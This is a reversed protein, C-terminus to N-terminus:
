ALSTTAQMGEGAPRVSYYQVTPESESEDLLIPAPAGFNWNALPEEKKQKRKVCCCCVLVFLVLLLLVVAGVIIPVLIAFIVLLNGTATCTQILPSNSITGSITYNSGCTCSYTNNATVNSCVGGAPCTIGM